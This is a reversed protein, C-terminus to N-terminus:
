ISNKPPEDINSGGTPKEARRSPRTERRNGSEQEKRKALVAELVQEDRQALWLALDFWASRRGGSGHKAEFEAVVVGAYKWSLFGYEGSGIEEKTVGLSLLSTIETVLWPDGTTVLQEEFLVRGGRGGRGGHNIPTWPIIHKQGSDAIAAFWPGRHESDLFARILHKEGKSAAIHRFGDGTFEVLHSFNRFNASKEVVSGDKAIKTGTAPKGPVPSSRACVFVCAECVVFSEPARVKNQGVFLSGMWDERPMGRSTEAACVWCRSAPVDICGEVRPSGASRHIWVSPSDIM